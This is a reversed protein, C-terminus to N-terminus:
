AYEPEEFETGEWLEGFPMCIEVCQDFISQAKIRDNRNPSVCSVIAILGQNEFLKAIKAMRMINEFREVDSYGTPFLARVEDGDIVVGGVQTAIRYALTTKGSNKRGTIWYVM